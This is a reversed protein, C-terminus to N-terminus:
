AAQRYQALVAISKALEWVGWGLFMLNRMIRVPIAGDNGFILWLTACTLTFMVWFTSFAITNARLQIARNREDALIQSKDRRWYFVLGFGIFGILGLIGGSRTFGLFPVLSFFIAFTTTIVILNLWCQKQVANM